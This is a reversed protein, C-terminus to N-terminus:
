ISKRKNASGTILDSRRLAHQNVGVWAMEHFMQDIEEPTEKMGRDMWWVLLSILAGSLMYSRTEARRSRTSHVSDLASLRKEIARAFHGRGLEWVDQMKGAEHLASVFTKVQGLHACFERVPLLRHSNNKQTTLSNAMTEFFEEVDSMFLDNKDSYHAYFTSRSVKARDLVQQVTIEPWPKEQMLQVLANGLINRTRIVRSDPKATSRARNESMVVM